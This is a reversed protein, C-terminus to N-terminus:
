EEKTKKIGDLPESINAIRPSRRVAEDKGTPIFREAGRQNINPVTASSKKQRLIVADLPAINEELLWSDRGCATLTRGSWSGDSQLMEVRPDQIGAYTFRLYPRADSVPNRFSLVTQEPSENCDCQLAECDSFLIATNRFQKRLINRFLLRRFPNFFGPFFQLKGIPYAIAYIEGGLRNKTFFSGPCLPTRDYKMIRTVPLATPALDAFLVRPSCRSATMRPKDVRWDSVDGWVIEEYAFGTDQQENWRAANVGILEGFGRATLLEVSPADLIVQGSLLMEIEDDSLAAVTRDSVAYTGERTPNQTFAHSIGLVYFVSSWLESRNVLGFISHPDNSPIHRAVDTKFLIKVGVARSDHLGLDAIADLRAKARRLEGPFTDDLALGNGMMDFHNITIGRSGFMAAELCEYISFTGSKSYIGCRPSNELEPYIELEGSVSCITHRATSPPTFMASSETYPPLHPRLLLPRDPSIAQKLLDWDRGEASHEGPGSCMLGLRVEPNAKRVCRYLARAPELLTAGCLELWAARWPHPPGPALINALLTERDVTEGTMEAFRKLHRPCFCGGFGLDDGHNHLRWDDEIWIARPCLEAAIRAWFDCLQRRWGPDLPCSVIPSVAGTEGIMPQFSRQKEGFSRGRSVHVTTCWPNISMAIGAQNLAEKVKRAMAFWREVEDDDPYGQFLEEPNQFLMVEEIQGNQCLRVLEPIREDEHFGPDIYYRLIYRFSM